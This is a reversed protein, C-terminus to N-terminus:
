GSTSAPLIEAYTATDGDLGPEPLATPWGFCLEHGQNELAVLSAGSGGGSFTLAATTNKARVTSDAERVLTTDVPAWGGDSRRARVPAASTQAALASAESEPTRDAM